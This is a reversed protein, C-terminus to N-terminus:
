PLRISQAHHFFDDPDYARKVQQLRPYNAGYYAGAWDALGTDAYNQYVEGTLHPRLAGALDDAWSANAATDSDEQWLSIVSVYHM